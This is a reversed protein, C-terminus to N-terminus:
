KPSAHKALFHSVLRGIWAMFDDQSMTAKAHNCTACCSVVNGTTYGLANDVRDIGNYMFYGGFKSVQKKKSPACGCYHCDRCIIEFVEEKTIAWELNRYRASLRYSKLINNRAAHGFPLSCKFSTRKNHRTERYLCGCSQTGGRLRSKSLVKEVGCDCRCLWQSEKASGNWSFTGARSIVTLRGYKKGTIDILNHAVRM